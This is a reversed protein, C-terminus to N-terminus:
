KSGAKGRDDTGLVKDRVEALAEVLTQGGLCNWRLTLPDDASAVAVPVTPKTPAAPKAGLYKAVCKSFYDWPFQDGVDTHTGDNLKKTVFRHDSIGPPMSNYPPAIVKASFNYKKSDQVALYAAVDIAKSQQMWQERSWSARSGAFVLNISRRNASLCSWSAEDTDTVDCVTVGGDVPDQSITYHYSVSVSSNGLWRALRDAGDKVSGGEETHLLFLDVRTGNRPERNPSWVGYENFDPRDSLVTEKVEAAVALPERAGNLRPLVDQKTAPDYRGSMDSVHLHPSTGGNTAYASNIVAIQQGATVRYGVVVNPLRVIHGYELCGGGEDESSEIVIWGAPDPGGYGQAAGVYKVVGSQIAYVPKGGSGGVFGFDVGTHFGGGRPGFPSTVVRGAGLPWYRLAM